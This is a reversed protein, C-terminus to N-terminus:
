RTWFAIGLTIAMSLMVLVQWCCLSRWMDREKQALQATEHGSDSKGLSEFRKIQNRHTHYHHWLKSLQEDKKEAEKQLALRARKGAALKGELHRITRTQKLMIERDQEAIAYSQPTHMQLFTDDGTAM